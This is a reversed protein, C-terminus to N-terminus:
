QKQYFFFFFLFETTKLVFVWYKAPWHKCTSNLQQSSSNLSTLVGSGIMRIEETYTYKKTCNFTVLHGIKYSQLSEGRNDQHTFSKPNKSPTTIQAPVLTEPSGIHGMMLSWTLGPNTAILVVVESSSAPFARKPGFSTYSPWIKPTWRGSPMNKHQGCVVEFWAQSFTMWHGTIRSKRTVQKTCGKRNNLCIKSHVHHLQRLLQVHRTTTKLWMGSDGLTLLHFFCLFLM